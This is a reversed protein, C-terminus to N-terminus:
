DGGGGGDGCTVGDNSNCNAQRKSDCSGNLGSGASTDSVKRGQRPRSRLLLLLLPALLLLLLLLLKM